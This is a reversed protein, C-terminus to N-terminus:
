CGAVVGLLCWWSRASVFIHVAAISQQIFLHFNCHPIRYVLKVLEVVFKSACSFWRLVSICFVQLQVQVPQYGLRSVRKYPVPQGTVATLQSLSLSLCVTGNDIAPASAWVKSLSRVAAM